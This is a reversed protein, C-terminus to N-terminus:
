GEQQVLYDILIGPVMVDDPDIEGIKKIPKVVSAIVIDSAFCMAESFNRQTRRFILNGMEDAEYAELITVNGRIPTHYLMDHGNLHVRQGYGNEEVMTGMGTLTLVGELGFGGARIREILTGQPNLELEMEGNAVLEPTIPTLSTFSMIMKKIAKAYLLKGVGETPTGSDNTVVTLDKKGHKIMEDIIDDPTGVAYFGGVLISDGDNIVSVADKLSIIKSMVM